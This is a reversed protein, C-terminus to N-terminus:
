SDKAYALVTICIYTNYLSNKVERYLQFSLGGADIAISVPQQAVAKKLANEDNVPVNEFGDIKM